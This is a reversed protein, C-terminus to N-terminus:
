LQELGAKQLISTFPLKPVWKIFSSQLCLQLGSVRSARLTILM